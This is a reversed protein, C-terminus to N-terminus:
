RKILPDIIIERNCLYNANYRKREEETSIQYDADIDRILKLCMAFASIGVFLNNNEIQRISSLLCLSNGNVQGEFIGQESQTYIASLLKFEVNNFQRGVKSKQSNLMKNLDDKGDPAIKTGHVLFNRIKYCLTPSLLNYDSIDTKIPHEYLSFHNKCWGKFHREDETNGDDPDNYKYGFMDPLLIADTLAPFVYGKMLLDNIEKTRQWSFSFPEFTTTM